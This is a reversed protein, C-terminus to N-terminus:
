RRSKLIPFMSKLPLVMGTLYKDTGNLTHVHNKFISNKIVAKTQLGIDLDWSGDEKQTAGIHTNDPRRSSTGSVFIYDGVRKIHPYNGLPKAKDKITKSNM